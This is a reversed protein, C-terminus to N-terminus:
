STSRAYNAQTCSCRQVKTRSTASSPMFKISQASISEAPPILCSCLTLALPWGGASPSNKSIAARSDAHKLRRVLTLQCGSSLEPYKPACPKRHTPGGHEQKDSCRRRWSKALPATPYFRTHVTPPYLPSEGRLLM